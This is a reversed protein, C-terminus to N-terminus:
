FLIDRKIQQFKFLDKSENKPFKLLMELNLKLSVVVRVVCNM